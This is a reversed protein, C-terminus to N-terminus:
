RTILTLNLITIFQIHKILYIELLVYQKLKIKQLFSITKDYPFLHWSYFRNKDTPVFFKNQDEYNNRGTEIQPEIFNKKTLNFIIERLYHTGSKLMTFNVFTKM